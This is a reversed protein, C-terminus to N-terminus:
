CLRVVSRPKQFPAAFRDAGLWCTSTARIIRVKGRTSTRFGALTGFIINLINTSPGASGHPLASQNRDILRWWKWYAPGM